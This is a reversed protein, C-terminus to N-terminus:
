SASVEFGLNETYGQVNTRDDNYFKKLSSAASGIRSAPRAVPKGEDDEGLGLLDGTAAM